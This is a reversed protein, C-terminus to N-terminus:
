LAEPQSDSRLGLSLTPGPVGLGVRGREGEVITVPLQGQIYTNAKSIGLLMSVLSIRSYCLDLLERRGPWDGERVLLLSSVGVAYTKESNGKGSM